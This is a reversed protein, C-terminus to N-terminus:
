AREPNPVEGAPLAREAGGPSYLALLRLPEWGPNVQRM